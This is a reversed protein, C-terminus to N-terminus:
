CFTSHNEDSDDALDILSLMYIPGQTVRVKASLGYGPVWLVEQEDALVPTLRQALREDLPMLLHQRGDGKSSAHLYQKLRVSQEMGLPQIRDGEQRLRFSLPGVMGGLSVLCHHAQRHPFASIAAKESRELKEVLLAKKLWPILTLRSSKGPGPLHVSIPLMRRRCDALEGEASEISKSIQQAFTLCDGELVVEVGGGLSYRKKSSNLEALREVRRLREFSAEVGSERMMMVLVRGQLAPHLQQWLSLSLSNQRGILRVNELQQSALMELLQNEQELNQRLHEFSQALAPFRETLQPVIQNRLFNRSYKSQANSKDNCWSQSIAALYSEIESRAAALMPRVLYLGPALIRVGRIGSLGRLSTGRCMRFLMTEVQDSLTHATVVHSISLKQAVSALAQYRLGRLAEESYESSPRETSNDTFKNASKAAALDLNIVQLPVKLDLCLKECFTQDDIADQGRLGHNVHCAFIKYQKETDASAGNNISAITTLARLLAVSDAGGSLAVLLRQEGSEEGLLSILNSGVLDEFRHM